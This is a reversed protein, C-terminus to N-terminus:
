KAEAGLHQTSIAVPTSDLWASGALELNAPHAPWFRGTRSFPLRKRAKPSRRMPASILFRATSHPTPGAKRCFACCSFTPMGAGSKAPHRRGKPAGNADEPRISFSQADLEDKTSALPIFTG